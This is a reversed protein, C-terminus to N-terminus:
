LGRVLKHLTEVSVAKLPISIRRVDHQTSMDISYNDRSSDVTFAINYGQAKYDKIIKLLNNSAM